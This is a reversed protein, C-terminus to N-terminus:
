SSAHGGPTDEFGEQWDSPKEPGPKSNGLLRASTMIGSYM